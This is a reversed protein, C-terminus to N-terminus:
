RKGLKEMFGEVSMVNEEDIWSWITQSWHEGKAGKVRPNQIMLRDYPENKKRQITVLNQVGKKYSNLFKIFYEKSFIIVENEVDEIDGSFDLAYAIYDFDLVKEMDLTTLEKTQIEKYGFLKEQLCGGGTKVELKIPKNTAKDRVAIDIAGVKQCLFVNTRPNILYRLAVELSKGYKGDDKSNSNYREMSASIVRPRLEKSLSKRTKYDMFAYSLVENSTTM